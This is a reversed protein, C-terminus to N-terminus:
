SRAVHTEINKMQESWGGDNNRFATARREPPLADYGSEVLTLRTGGEPADELTFEVLTTPENSYDKDPDTADPLWRFAFYREPEIAVVQMELKLHEYGPYTIQGHISSGARFEGQLRAKFWAGFERADSLARWVRARPASLVLKKEIKDTERPPM